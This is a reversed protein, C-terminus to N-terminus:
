SDVEIHLTGREPFRPDNALRLVEHPSVEFVLERFPRQTTVGRAAITLGEVALVGPVAQVAAELAARVLPTGFTFRDPHFFGSPGTLAAVIRGKVHAAFVGPEACIRIGIELDVHVPDRVIVDRGAQRVCAMARELDARQAPPLAGGGDPDATVFASLWSGTWRFRAGGRQVWPLREAIARYDEERVARYTVQRFADPALRKIREAPEPDAGDTVPFPNTAAVVQTALADHVGPDLPHVLSTITDEALNARTGPGTRYRVRFRTGARPMRGFEGDGFRVTFGAGSAYDEHVIEEGARRFGIIRRWSGDELAFHNGFPPSDLLTRAWHWPRPPDFPAGTAPDIEELEVEPVHTPLGIEDVAHAPDGARAVWALGHAETARLSHLYAIARRNAVADHPGQREVARRIGPAPAGVVLDEEVTAGATAPVLNGRVTTHLLPMDFPLAQASEWRVRTIRLPALPDSPTERVLVLPDITEEVEVVRVLHRRAPTAPDPPDSRLLLAKGQWFRDRDLGDFPFWGRLYLETSGAPLCPQSEDPIHVPMANWVDHLWFRRPAPRGEGDRRDALGDGLEFPIPAGGGVAPSFVRDGALVERAGAAAPLTLDMWTRAARGDFLDYDVLRAHRRLSRRQTATELYAERAYRDQVYSLEDGLAAVVEAFMVGVDADIREGWQPYRQAAFDLFASRLSAFDRALYDVPFDVGPEPPCTHPPPACDLGSDCAQKFSLEVGNFFRDVRSDDLTLRYRSFDGPEAVTLRLVNRVQAPNGPGPTSGGDQYLQAATVVVPAGGSLSAIRVQAPVIAVASFTTTLRQPDVHFFVDLERQDGPNRVRVFDIGTVQTQALLVTLRELGAM